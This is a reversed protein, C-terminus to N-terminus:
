AEPTLILCGTADVEFRFGPKVVTTATPEVVIAPATGRM